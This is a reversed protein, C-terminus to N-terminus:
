NVETCLENNSAAKMFYIALSEITEDIGYKPQWNIDNYFLSSDMGFEMQIKSEETIIESLKGGNYKSSIKVAKEAIDKLSHVQGSSLNYVTNWREPNKQLMTVIADAADRIDFREMLQMGGILKIPEGRFASSVFKSLFDIETLGESGGALTGLRISSYRFINNIKSLTELLLETAYKAQAYASNPAVPTMESWLPKTDSGYVSQSSINIIAPVFNTVARTFIEHTFKLSDSINQLTGHPRTFGLHILIDVNGLQIRGNLYDAKDYIAEVRNGYLSKTKHKDLDFAWIKFIRDSILRNILSQGLYGCSGTVMVTKVNNITSGNLNKSLNAVQLNRDFPIIKDTVQRTGFYNYNL